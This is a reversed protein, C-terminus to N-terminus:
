RRGDSCSRSGGDSDRGSSSTFGGTQPHAVAMEALTLAGLMSLIGGLIWASLMLGESPVERAVSHPSRFIGSGVISGVTVATAAYLGIQRRLQPEMSNMAAEGDEM